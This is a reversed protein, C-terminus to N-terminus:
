SQPILDRPCILPLNCGSEAKPLVWAVSFLVSYPCHLWIESLLLLLQLLLLSNLLTVWLANQMSGPALGVM